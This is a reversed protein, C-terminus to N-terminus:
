QAYVGLFGPWVEHLRALMEARIEAYEPRDAYNDLEWPDAELDHLVESGNLYRFYKLGDRRVGAYTLQSGAYTEFLVDRDPAAEFGRIVESLDIGDVDEASAAGALGLVTPLVDVNAVLGDEVRPGPVLRPYRVLMPVKLCVEWPCAKSIWRHEGWAHGNDSTYVIITDDGMGHAELRDLLAAVMEDTSLQMELHNKRFNLQAVLQFFTTPLGRAQIWPPKDQADEEFFNPYRVLNLQDFAGLHREAPDWPYHPTTTSIWLAFPEETPDAASADIFDLAHQALVDTSYPAEATDYSVAVGNELMGFGTQPVGQPHDFVRFDDWGPPTYPEDVGATWLDTFGNTYKGLFGTRYGADDLRTAWTDGDEFREPGFAGGNALMRHRHTYRGTFFSGRSPGCIPTTVVAQTFTIGERALRSWTAPMAPLGLQPLPSHTADIADWRQDDALIVIVNPRALPPGVGASALRSTALTELCQRLDGGDILSEADLTYACIGDRGLLRHSELWDPVEVDDCLREAWSIARLPARRRDRGRGQHHSRQSRRAQDRLIGRVDASAGLLCLGIRRPREGTESQRATVMDLGSLSRLAHTLAAIEAPPDIDRRCEWAPFFLQIAHCREWTRLGSELARVDRRDLDGASALASTPGAASILAILVFLALKSAPSM